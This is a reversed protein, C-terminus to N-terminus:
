KRLRNDTGSFKITRYNGIIRSLVRPTYREEIESATLNTNIITPRGCNIRTNIINYFESILYNSLFETGLDDIVLLDCQLVADIKDSEGSYSFHEKEIKSFLNQASGYVVGFGLNTVTNIIAMSLHTKGLGVGGSFILNQSDKSFGEAYKKAMKYVSTMQKKAEGEYFDLNFSEFTQKELPMEECLEKFVLERAKIKACECLKVGDYGTDGCKKCAPSPAKVKASKMIENKQSQLTKSEATLENLLNKDGRMAAGMSEAGIASLRNDIKVLEPVAKRLEFLKYEYEKERMKFNARIKNIAREYYESKYAM